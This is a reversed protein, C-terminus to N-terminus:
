KAFVDEPLEPLQRQREEVALRRRATTLRAALAADDPNRAVLRELHWVAAFWQGWRLCDAAEQLQWLLWREDALSAREERWMPTVPTGDWLKLEDISGSAIWHGDPSYSVAHVSGTHGHLALTEQGTVADWVRITGDDSASAIRRGDPSYSVGFVSGAHGDLALLEQGALADWVKVTRNPGASAIRRGDPSFSVGQVSGTFGTRGRLSLSEQGTLADWIKVTGDWGSSAIHRGDPSYSVAQVWGSHGRLTLAEQGTAADWVKVTGDRGASAIRRGDPSYSVGSVDALHGRLTLLMDGTSADWVNLPGASSATAIRRGDPSHAVGYVRGIKGRLALLERGTRTDWVNVTGSGGTAIRRGDPSYSVALALLPLRLYGSLTLADEGTMADWVKVTRDRGASAIHRGDPSYSVDGVSGIHGRLTFSQRRSTTDWVRVTGDAGATAIRRGDPSYSACNVPGTHGKLTFVEKGTMTDWVRVTEDAGASAIRRGDPSYSVGSVEGAHGRLTLVEEGTMADWVRVTGDSSATAIRRDDPSYAMDNVNSEPGRFALLQKGTTADWVKPSGDNGGSAIHRGDPSYSLGRTLLSYGEFALLERGTMPDWVVTRRTGGTAIRRGDPSYVVSDVSSFQSRFAVAVQGTMADWVRATGDLSASAIHRGDPSYAVRNVISTHGKLELLPARRQRDLYHWEWDRQGPACADLLESTRVPQNERWAAGAQYIRFLYLYRNALDLANQAIGRQEDATKRAAGELGQAKVALARQEEAVKRAVAESQYAQQSRARLQEAIANAKELRGSYAVFFGVAVLALVAVASVAWLGVATPHRRTWRWAREFAGSPRAAIPEGSLWHRLDAALDGATAYRRPPEKAMAKLCITELDRPVRDNLLRPPKPDDHLVQHMLMRANGRFPLEGALLRYLIVGLSYVDTRGDVSHGSGRAQEPSMYAPTGLVQGDITMTIEGASRKALGFDMVVPSGDDRLMINTPKVDRHVIGQRHAHELAEAVGAVLVAAERFPMGGATLRDGLTVGAIFDSVLYPLGEHQGVEYVPVIAPHRLQATSRAERLFRDLEQGDPLNGARPVKLAVMRDLQPDYAKYVTGFAGSGVAVLLTFRGLTRGEAATGLSATSGSELRFTSGCLACVLEGSEPLTALEIPNQCHPCRVHVCLGSLRWHAPRAQRAVPGSGDPATDAALPDLGRDLGEPPAAPRPQAVAPSPEARDPLAAFTADIAAGQAPFRSRYESPEPREGARRRYALELTMLERFLTPRGEAPMTALHDELSPRGGARWASEFRDCATELLAILEPTLSADGPPITASMGNMGGVLPLPDLAAQAEPSTFLPGGHGRRQVATV